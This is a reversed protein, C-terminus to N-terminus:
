SRVDQLTALTQRREGRKRAKNIEERASATPLDLDDENDVILHHIIYHYAVKGTERENECVIVACGEVPNTTSVPAGNVTPNVKL